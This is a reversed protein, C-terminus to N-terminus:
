WPHESSWLVSFASAGPMEASPKPVGDVSPLHAKRSTANEQRARSSFDLCSLHHRQITHKPTSGFGVAHLATARGTSSAHLRRRTAAEFLEFRGLHSGPFGKRPAQSNFGTGESGYDTARGISSAHLPRLTTAELRSLQIRVLMSQTYPRRLPRRATRPRPRSRKSTRM